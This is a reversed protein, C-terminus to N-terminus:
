RPQIAPSVPVADERSEGGLMAALPAAVAGFLLSMFTWFSLFAGATAAKDAAQKVAERTRNEVDTVRRQAEDQSLGTRQSVLQALYTRDDASLEGQAVARAVIRTVEARQANMVENSSPPAPPTPAAGAAAPAPRFLMDVFYGVTDTAGGANNSGQANSVAAGTAAGTATNAITGATYFGAIMIFLATAVVGLGWVLFGQAADRFRAEDGFDDIFHARMRGALYGGCAFGFAQALVLWVAGILTLTTASPGRYPSAISLGIGSGLSVILFTVATAVIAGAIAASWSFLSSTSAPSAPVVEVDGSMITETDSVITAM